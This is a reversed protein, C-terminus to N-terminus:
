YHFLALFLCNSLRAAKRRAHHGRHSTGGWAPHAWSQHDSMSKLVLLANYSYSLRSIWDRRVLRIWAKQNTQWSSTLNTKLKKNDNRIIYILNGKIAKGGEDSFKERELYSISTVPPGLNTVYIFVSGLGHERKSASTQALQSVRFETCLRKFSTM